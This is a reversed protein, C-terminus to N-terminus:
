KGPTAPGIQFSGAVRDGKKLVTYLDPVLATSIDRPPSYGRNVILECNGGADTGARVHERQDPPFTVCLGRGAADTLSAWNCNFKTSNFDFADPRDVKTLEVHASDPTATGFPRGIHDPPYYSWVAKRDWSFRTVGKPVSFIWGLEYIDTRASTWAVSYNLKGDSLEAHLHAAPVSSTVVIDAEVSEIEALPMKWLAAPEIAAAPEGKRQVMVNTLRAVYPELRNWGKGDPVNKGSVLNFKPFTLDAIPRVEPAPHTVPKLVFQCTLVNWGGPHDFELRLTDAAALNKAPLDLRMLGHSRAPLALTATGHALNRSKELLSWGVHLTALDTFSYRNTVEFAVGDPTTELSGAVAIPSQAMKIHYYEPRPNRFGDVVGKVKLLNIGTEPYYDYHKTPCKDAVARDQWEWL